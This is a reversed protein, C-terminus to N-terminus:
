KQDRRYNSIKTKIDAFHNQIEQANLNQKTYNSFINKPNSKSIVKAYDAIKKGSVTDDDPLMDKSHPVIVGSDIVGKLAAYIRSKPSSIHQGIDLIVEKIKLELAKKGLLYGTLYSSPINGKSARWGFREIEKSHVFILTKDGKKEYKIIQLVINKNKPRIVLRPKNSKLYNLRKNYDTKKQRKRKLKVTYNKNKAM